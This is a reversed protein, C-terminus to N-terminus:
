KADQAPPKLSMIEQSAPKPTLLPDCTTATEPATEVAPAQDAARYRFVFWWWLPYSFGLYIVNTTVVRAAEPWRGFFPVQVLFHFALANLAIGAIEIVLFLGGQRVVNKSRDQFAFYKNGVFMFVMGLALSPINAHEPAWDFVRVLLALSGLDCLTAGLGVVCSRAFILIRQGLTPSTAMPQTM